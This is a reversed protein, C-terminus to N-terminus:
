FNKEVYVHVKNCDPFYPCITYYVVSGDEYIFNNVPVQMIGSFYCSHRWNQPLEDLMEFKLENTYCGLQFAIEEKVNKPTAHRPKYPKYYGMNEYGMYSEDGYGGDYMTGMEDVYGDYGFDDYM